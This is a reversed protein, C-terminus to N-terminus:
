NDLQSGDTGIWFQTISRLNERCTRAVRYERTGRVRLGYQGNSRQQIEEVFIPNVLVSRHIRIFGHPKLVEAVRSISDRVRYSSLGWRLLVYNGQAEVATVDATDIFVIKRKLKVALKSSKIPAVPCAVEKATLDLLNLHNM